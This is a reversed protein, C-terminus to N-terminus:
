RSHNYHEFRSPKAYYIERESFVTKTLMGKSALDGIWWRNGWDKVFVAYRTPSIWKGTGLFKGNVWFGGNKKIIIRKNKGISIDRRVHHYPRVHHYSPTISFRIKSRRHHKKTHNWGKTKAYSGNGITETQVEIKSKGTQPTKAESAITTALLLGVTLLVDAANKIKISM